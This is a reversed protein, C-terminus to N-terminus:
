GCGDSDEIENPSSEKEPIVAETETEVEIIEPFTKSWGKWGNEIM